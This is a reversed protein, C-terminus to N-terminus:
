CLIRGFEIVHWADDDAEGRSREGAPHRVRIPMEDAAAHIRDGLGVARTRPRPRPIPSTFSSAIILREQAPFQHEQRENSEENAPDRAPSQSRRWASAVHFVRAPREPRRRQKRGHKPIRDDTTNRTVLSGWAYARTPRVAIVRHENADHGVGGKVKGACRSLRLRV